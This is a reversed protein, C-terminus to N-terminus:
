PRAPRDLDARRHGGPGRPGVRRDRPVPRHVISASPVEGPLGPGAGGGDQREQASSRLGQVGHNYEEILAQYRGRTTKPDPPQDLSQTRLGPTLREWDCVAFNWRGPPLPLKRLNSGDLDVLPSRGIRPGAQRDLEIGAAIWRAVLLCDVTTGPEFTIPIERRHQGEIDVVFLRAHRVDGVTKIEVYAVSRGDPSIKFISFLDDNASGETLYRAGTGDPHVLTLRGRHAPEGGITRTALWTGDRSCDLVLDGDPIPLRTRGTGDANVRWTEFKRYETGVPM